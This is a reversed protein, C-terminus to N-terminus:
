LSLQDGRPQSTHTKSTGRRYATYHKGEYLPESAERAQAAQLWTDFRDFFAATPPKGRERVDFVFCRIGPHSGVFDIIQKAEAASNREQKGPTYPVVVRGSLHHIVREGDKPGGMLYVVVILSWVLVRRGCLMGRGDIWATAVPGDTDLQREVM